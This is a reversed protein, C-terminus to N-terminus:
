LKFIETSILLYKVVPYINSWVNLGKFGLNFGM